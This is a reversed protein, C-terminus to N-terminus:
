FRRLQQKAVMLAACISCDADVMVSIIKEISQKALHGSKLAERDIQPQFDHRGNGQNTVNFDAQNIVHEIPKSTFESKKYYEDGDKIGNTGPVFPTEKSEMIRDFEAQSDKKQDAKATEKAEDIEAQKNLEAKRTAEAKAEDIEIHKLNDQAAKVQITLKEIQARIEPLSGAPLQIETKSATLRQIVSTLTREKAQLENVTQKAKDIKSEIDKMDTDPPFLNFLLDIKKQDSLQM